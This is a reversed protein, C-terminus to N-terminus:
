THFNKFCNRDKNFCLYCSCKECMVQSKQKCGELKCRQRDTKWDPWHNFGDGAVEKKKEEKKEIKWDTFNELMEVHEETCELFETLEEEGEEDQEGEDEGDSSSTEKEENIHLPDKTNYDDEDSVNEDESSEPIVVITQRPRMEM